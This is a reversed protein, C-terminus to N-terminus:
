NEMLIITAMDSLKMSTREVIGKAPSSVAVNTNDVEEIEVFIKRVYYEKGLMRKRSYLQFVYPSGDTDYYICSKPLVARYEQSTYMLNIEIPEGHLCETIQPLESVYTYIGNQYEPQEWSLTIKKGEIISTGAYPLYNEQSVTWQLCCGREMYAVELKEEDSFEGSNYSQSLVVCNEKARIVCGDAILQELEGLEEKLNEMQWFALSGQLGGVDLQQELSEKYIQRQLYVIQVDAEKLRLLESGAEVKDGNHVYVEEIACDEPVNIVETEKYYLGATVILQKRISDSVTNTVVVMPKDDVYNHASIATCVGMVVFIGLIVIWFRNKKM